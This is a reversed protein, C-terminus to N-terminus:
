SQELIDLSNQVIIKKTKINIEKIYYEEYPILFSTALKKEVMKNDTTILLFDSNCFRDIKSVSGLLTDNEIIDCKIIDFYFYENDKLKCEQRTSELSKYLRKNTLKTAIDITSINKFKIINRTQNFYEISYENFDEDILTTNPQFQEPFDSIIHLKIDGKLGVSKGLQAVYLLEKPLTKTM